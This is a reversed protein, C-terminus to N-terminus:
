TTQAQNKRLGQNQQMDKLIYIPLTRFSSTAGTESKKIRM